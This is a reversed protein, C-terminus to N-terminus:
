SKLNLLRVGRRCETEGWDGVQVPLADHGRQRRDSASDAVPLHRPFAFAITGIVVTAAM